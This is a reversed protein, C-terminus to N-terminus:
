LSKSHRPFSTKAEESTVISLESMVFFLRLTLMVTWNSTSMLTVSTLAPLGFFLCLRPCLVKFLESRHLMGHCADMGNKVHLIPLVMVM